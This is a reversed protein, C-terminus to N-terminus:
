QFNPTVEWFSSKEIMRFASRPAELNVWHAKTACSSQGEDPHSTLVATDISCQKEHFGELIAQGVVGFRVNGSTM